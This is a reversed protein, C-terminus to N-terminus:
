SGPVLSVPGPRAGGGYLGMRQIRQAYCSAPPGQCSDVASVLDSAPDPDPEQTRPGPPRPGQFKAWGVYFKAGLHLQRSHRIHVQAKGSQPMACLVTCESGNKAPIGTGTASNQGRGGYSNVSAGAFYRVNPVTPNANAQAGRSLSSSPVSLVDGAADSHGHGDGDEKRM